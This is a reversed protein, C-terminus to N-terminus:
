VTKELGETGGNQQAVKKATNRYAISLDSETFGEHLALIDMSGKVTSSLAVMERMKRAAEEPDEPKMQDIVSGFCGRLGNKVQDLVWRTGLVIGRALTMSSNQIVEASVFKAHLWVLHLAHFLIMIAMFAVYGAIGIALLWGLIWLILHTM